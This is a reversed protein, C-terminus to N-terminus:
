IVKKKTKSKIFEKAFEIKEEEMGNKRNYTAEIGMAEYKKLGYPHYPELWISGIADFKEALAAIASYHEKNDNVDPIIPCRLVIEKKNKSLLALNELIKERSVGIYEKHKKEDSIKYDFLFVDVFPLIKEVAEKSAFGSTELCVHIGKKKAGTAIATAFDGQM